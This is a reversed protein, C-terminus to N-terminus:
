GIADISRQGPGKFDDAIEDDADSNAFNDEVIRVAQEMLRAEICRDVLEVVAENCWDCHRSFKGVGELM